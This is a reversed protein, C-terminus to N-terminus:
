HVSSGVSKNKKRRKPTVKEESSALIAQAALMLETLGSVEENSLHLTMPGMALNVGGCPCARVEGLENSAIELTEDHPNNKNYKEAAM